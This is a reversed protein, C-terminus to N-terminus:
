ELTMLVNASSYIVEPSCSKMMKATLFHSEKRTTFDKEVPCSVEHQACKQMKAVLFHSEDVTM